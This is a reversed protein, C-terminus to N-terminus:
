ETLQGLVHSAAVMQQLHTNPLGFHVHSQDSLRHGAQWHGRAKVPVAKDGPESNVGPAETCWPLEAGPDGHVQPLPSHM